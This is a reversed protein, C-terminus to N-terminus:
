FRFYLFPNYTNDILYATCILLVLFALVPRLWFLKSSTIKNFLRSPIPTAGIIAIILISAYSFLRYLFMNDSFGINTINIMCGLYRFALSFNESAFFVWGVMVIVMTYLMGIFRNKSQLKELLYKKELVLIIGYYLGWAVFNFSAGHWLGTLLWVAFINSYRRISAKDEPTFVFKGLKTTTNYRSADIRSGGLPIYVYEKFWSSLSIHWRRWFETISRSIYPYNFNECFRFGFMKGLGIAMDSYGSFDYYIQITYGIIGLWASLMSIDAGTNTIEWLKGASNAILVKKGLGVCFRYLGDTFMVLTQPHNDVQNAIDDYRVIPGAILQPFFSLYMGFSVFSRQVKTKGKYVDICYSLAQFTYFSIGIPLAINALPINTRIIGNVTSILFDTYKFVGLLGINVICCVVLTWRARYKNIVFAMIYNFYASFLMLLVYVPEGWAYFFLSSLFLTLNKYKKPVLYYIILLPALFYFLFLISSFIM